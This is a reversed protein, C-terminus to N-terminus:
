EVKWELIGASFEDQLQVEMRLADTTVPEFDVSQFADTGTGFEDQTQVPLWQDGQRYLLRWQGPVRCKGVGTDDFWYVASRTLKKPKAFHAEIWERQGTHPWWTMRPISRDGSGSPEVGDAVALVSDSDFCHSAQVRFAPKPPESWQVADPGAGIVPFSAIRLRAAGMPILTITELPADSAAPSPQLLGVLGLHDAQWQAIRKAQAKLEIPAGEHTFPMQNDPWDKQVVEFSSAPDDADFVLGYNWPSEPHIEWAPWPDTGGQRVYREGIKLSYTLPGRDVSVSNKNEEWRRLTVEMGLSLEVTEGDSWRRHIRLYTSPRVATEVPKGAISLEVQRCWRPIRLYLPFESPASLKVHLQIQEDFPYRTEQVITVKAGDGVRATVHSPAYMVAALGNDPTAMWLHEAYYPWGHGWNHQCCRHGHPNMHLMPGSNQFGPSKNHRDSLVLNPATLYRLAKMDATLAAPLSNFAVDECRDAWLPDGTIALLIEDSLMAEVMGCTEIAQRPDSFGPRCNEDGGFMGGPVQGYMSRVKQWNRYAAELDAPDKSQVYWRAPEGFAQGINVNHWNIVDDDWRATNRHVKEALKLLDEEGTRNYLWHVSYLLDGGRMRDWYDPLFKEDPIAQLFRFYDTMLEIVRPDEAHEYHDQLCYLMIMNPWLDAAGDVRTRNSEPGFWGDAQRSALAAEIWIKTEDLMRQDGLLYACNAFGKLWYPAEEWGSQGGAQANLWANDEKRLFRSIEGLHGHFGDAQLQLQKRVWSQPQVAGVPLKILPAPLLPPRPQVYAQNTSGTNPRAVVTVSDDAAHAWVSSGIVILIMWPCRKM